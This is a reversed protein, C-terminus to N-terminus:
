RSSAGLDRHMAEIGREVGLKPDELGEFELSAFGDFESALIIQNIQNLPLDGWGLVSGQLYAGGNTEIWEPTAPFQSGRCFFDKMQVVCAHSIGREVASLAPEDVVESNGVDLCWKFNDRNVAEIVAIVRDSHNLFRGHNEVSTTIGLKAAHDAITGTVEIILPLLAAFAQPDDNRYPWHAVDHRFFRIGLRDALEVHRLVRALNVARQDADTDILNASIALNSLELNHKQSAATLQQVVSEDDLMASDESNGLQPAFTVSALEMHQSGVSAAHGFMEDITLQGSSLLPRYAYSSVGIKM